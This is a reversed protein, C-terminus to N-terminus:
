KAAAAGVDMHGKEALAQAEPYRKGKLVENVRGPNVHFAAAIDHQSMGQRRMRWVAVADDLALQPSTNRARMM